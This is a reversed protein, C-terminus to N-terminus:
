AIAKEQVTWVHQNFNFIYKNSNKAVKLRTREECDAPNIGRRKMEMKIKFDNWNGKQKTLFEQIMKLFEQLKGKPLKFVVEGSKISLSPRVKSSGGLGAQIINSTSGFEINEARIPITVIAKEGQYKVTYHAFDYKSMPICTCSGKRMKGVVGDIIVDVDVGADKLGDIEIQKFHAKGDRLSTGADQLLEDLSTYKKGNITHGSKIDLKIALHDEANYGRASRHRTIGIVQSKPRLPIEAGRIESNGLRGVRRLYNPDSVHTMRDKSSVEIIKKGNVEITRTQGPKLDKAVRFSTVKSNLNHGGVSLVSDRLSWSEVITPCKMWTRCKDKNAEVYMKKSHSVDISGIIFNYRQIEFSKSGIKNLANFILDEYNTTSTSTHNGLTEELASMAPNARQEEYTSYQLDTGNRDIIYAGLCGLLTLDRSLPSLAQHVSDVSYYTEACQLLNLFDEENSVIKCIRYSDDIPFGRYQYRSQYEKETLIVAGYYEAIKKKDNFSFNALSKIIENAARKLSDPVVMKNDTTQELVTSEVLVGLNRFIQYMAAYQVVKVLEPSSLNSFFDYAHQEAQYVPDNDSIGESEGPIYSVPLSGTRNLAYISYTDDEVIYGVGATNWNYTLRSVGLDGTVGDNFTWNVPKPYDFDVYDVMGNESWSKLM